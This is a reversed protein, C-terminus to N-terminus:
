KAIAIKRGDVVYIGAPLSDLSSADGVCRGYIDYVKGAAPQATEVDSIGTMTNDNQWAYLNDLYVAPEEAARAAAAPAASAPNNTNVLKFQGLREFHVNPFEAMDIDFSNWRGPEITLQKMNTDCKDEGLSVPYFEIVTNYTSYIDVHFHDMHSIDAMEDSSSLQFGIFNFNTLKYAADSECDVVEVVTSQSWNGIMWGSASATYHDSFFSIVKDPMHVPQPSGPVSVTPDVPDPDKANKWLYLNDIYLTQGSGGDFKFQGLKSFVVNPFDSVAIDFSDWKGATLHRTVKDKDYTPDLSIPYINIDMDQLAYIDIHIYEMDSVDITGAGGDAQLGQYNFNTLKLANNGECQTIETSTAQSWNAITFASVATTYKDSFFSKVNAAAKDPEPAAPVVVEKENKWLYLNDIYLTQGSGGDFKFQGLRSFVVNPFDSVAIDLSNWTEATLHRTVKDQDYTPNLSIPYINIDLDKLPYIDLHIYEMDSVDITGNGADAQLGQMNFNTLKLADNGSCSAVTTTTTQGWNGITFASVAATYKDSFFSKVNEAKKDPEPAAPIVTPEVPDPDPEVGGNVFGGITIVARQPATSYCTASQDFTDDYAFAYTRGKSVTVDTSHFFKVYENCPFETGGAFPAIGNDPDWNQLDTQTRFQGRNFAACFMAQVTKDIAIQNDTSAQANAFQGAGEIADETTPKSYIHAQDGIKWYTGEKCTLTFTDGSVSGEWRGLVGMNINATHSRFYDWVKNIYADFLGTQKISEVKSPQKIIGGLNDKQILNYYCDKYVTNGLTSNWRNIVDKYSIYEGRQIHATSGAVNGASYLDLGMPYQFADVRTTNIWIQGTGKDFDPEYTFEILEWRIDANPDTPNNMDAGAYGGDAHVHMYMPSKFGIFLRCAHTAGLYITHDKLDSMKTFINAYGWDDGKIHMTNVSVDLPKVVCRQQQSTAALDYYVDKAVDNEKIKGIIAVYIDGDAFDGNSSNILKVPLDASASLATLAMVMGSLIHKLKM